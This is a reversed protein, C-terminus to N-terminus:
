SIQDILAALDFDMATVKGGADHTNLSLEVQNYCSYIEPHHNLEEAEYSVRILFAMAERFNRFRFSKKLRDDTWKWDSLEELKNTIEENSLIISM